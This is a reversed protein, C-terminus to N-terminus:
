SCDSDAGLKVADFRNWRDRWVWGVDCVMDSHVNNEFIDQDLQEVLNKCIAM